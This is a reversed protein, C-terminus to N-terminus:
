DPVQTSQSAAETALDNIWDQGTDTLSFGVLGICSLLCLALIWILIYLWISRKRKPPAGLSSMRWEEDVSPRTGPQFDVPPPMPGSSPAPNFDVPPPPPTPKSTPTPSEVGEAKESENAVLPTGCNSCFKDGEANEKDCNPCRTVPYLSRLHCWLIARREIAM